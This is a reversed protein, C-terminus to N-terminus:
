VLIDGRFRTTSGIGLEWFHRKTDGEIMILRTEAPAGARLFNLIFLYLLSRIISRLLIGLIWQKVLKIGAMDKVTWFARFKKNSNTKCYFLLLFSLSLTPSFSLRIPWKQKGNREININQCGLHKFLYFPFINKEGNKM